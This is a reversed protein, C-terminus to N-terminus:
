TLGVDEDVSRQELRQARAPQEVDLLEVPDGLLREVHQEGRHGLALDGDRPEAPDPAAGPKRSTAAIFGNSATPM